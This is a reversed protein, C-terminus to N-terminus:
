PGALLRRRALPMAVDDGAPPSAVRQKEDPQPMRMSETAVVLHKLKATGAGSAVIIAVNV